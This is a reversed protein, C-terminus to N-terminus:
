LALMGTHSQLNGLSCNLTEQFKQGQMKDLKYLKIGFIYYVRDCLSAAVLAPTNILM